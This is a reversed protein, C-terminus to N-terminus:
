STGAALDPIVKYTKNQEQAVEEGKIELCDALHVKVM